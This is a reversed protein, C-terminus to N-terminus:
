ENKPARSRASKVPTEDQEEEDLLDAQGAEVLEEALEEDVEVIEGWGGVGERGRNEKFKVRPM